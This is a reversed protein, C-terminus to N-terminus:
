RKRGPDGLRSTWGRGGITPDQAVAPSQVEHSSLFEFQRQLASALPTWPALGYRLRALRIDPVYRQRVVETSGGGLRVPKKPAALNATFNAVESLTYPVDSGVNVVAGDDGHALLALLWVAMDAGYLLTRAPTGDGQLVVAEANAAMAVFQSIALHDPLWPGAFAFLRAIVIAASAGDRGGLALAEMAMKGSAYADGPDVHCPMDEVYSSEGAPLSGYVAGSSLLLVRRAGSIQAQELVARTGLVIDEFVTQPNALAGPRVAAAGQIAFDFDGTDFGGRRVDGPLLRLWTAKALTPNRTAFAASDRTLATASISYGDRNLCALARLLWAGVFGTCGTLFLRAGLLPTLDVHRLVTALDAAISQEFQMTAATM